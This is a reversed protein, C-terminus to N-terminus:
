KRSAPVPWAHGVHPGDTLFPPGQKEVFILTEQFGSGTYASKLKFGRDVGEFVFRQFTFPGHGGPDSVSMLGAEGRLKYEVAARVMALWVHSKFDRRLSKEWAPVFLSVLPNPSERILQKMQDECQPYPLALIVALKEWVPDQDQVLKLVGASTGGAAQRLREWDWLNTGVLDSEYSYNQLLERISEMVKADDGPSAKQLELIRNRMWDQCVARETRLCAALAGRHPEAELGEVVEKLTEPTFQGFNGALTACDMVEVALQVLTSILTGDRSINRGLAVSALLDERAETQRDHQLEWMVRFRAAIAAAKARALHPLLTGPGESMDIGWDCPATALAAKRLLRFEDDYGAFLEDFREPLKQSMGEKSYLYADDANRGNDPAVLFAQGYLLAPNIDTRFSPGAAGSIGSYGSRNWLSNIDTRFEPGAAGVAAGSLVLTTLCILNVAKM